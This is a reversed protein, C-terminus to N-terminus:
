KSYFGRSFQFSADKHHISAISQLLYSTISYVVTSSLVYMLMLLLTLSSICFCLMRCQSWGIKGVSLYALLDQCSQPIHSYNMRYSHETRVNM